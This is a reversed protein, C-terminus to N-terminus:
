TIEHVNSLGGHTYEEGNKFCSVGNALVFHHHPNWFWTYLDQDTLAGPKLCACRGWKNDTLSSPLNTKPLGGPLLLWGHDTVVRVSKWGSVLLTHIRENIEKLLSDMHKALKWGRDHGEHDIDGFECWANGQGDGNDSRELIKWGSDLLLKKLHYGGKLSQGTAAVCPEFNCNGEEGRIKEKVPSVAAKGTATVSPLASWTAKEVINLGRSEIMEVLRKAADHRLGDVFLLCQGEPYLTEKAIVINGGPYGLANVQKQLYRASEELWPLYLVRIVVTIAILDDQKEILSLSKLVADDVKWGFTQYHISLEELTGAAISNQTLEALVILEGLALALPAEGLEAWVLKRRQGHHNEMM